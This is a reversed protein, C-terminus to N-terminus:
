GQSGDPGMACAKSNSERDGCSNAERPSSLSLDARMARPRLHPPHTHTRDRDESMKVMTKLMSLKQTKHRDEKDM